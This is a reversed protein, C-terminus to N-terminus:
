FLRFNVEIVIRTPAARGDKMGPKFRYLPIVELAKEDLGEGLRRVVVPNRPIGQADVVVAIMCVGQYKNRRAEDSFEATPAYLLIPAKVGNGPQLGDGSGPGLTHGSGPGYTGNAGSGLGAPGGPGNSIMTVNTSTMIGINPLSPDTPMMIPQKVIASEAALKPNAITPIISPALPMASFKPPNGRTPDIPDHSGSGSGDNHSAPLMPALLPYQSLDIHGTPMVVPPIHGGTIRLGLVVLLAVLAANLATSTGIAWPNTHIRTDLTVSSFFGASGPLVADSHSQQSGNYSM